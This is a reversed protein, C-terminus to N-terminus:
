NQFAGNKAEFDPSGLREKGKKVELWMTFNVL